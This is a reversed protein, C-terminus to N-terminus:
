ESVVPVQALHAGLQAPQVRALRHDHGEEHFARLHEQNEGAALAVGEAEDDDVGVGVAPELSSPIM